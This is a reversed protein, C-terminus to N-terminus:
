YTWYEIEYVACDVDQGDKDKVTSEHVTLDSIRNYGSCDPIYKGLWRHVDYPDQRVIGYEHLGTVQIVTKKKMNGTPYEALKKADVSGYGQWHKLKAM